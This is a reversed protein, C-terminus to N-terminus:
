WWTLRYRYPSIQELGDGLVRNKLYKVGGDETLQVTLEHTIVRDNGLPECVADVTLLWTGDAQEEMRVVEPIALSFGKPTRSGGGLRNWRYSQTEEDYVAYSRLQEPTVPLYATMIEEFEAAPIGGLYDEPNLTEGYKLAYFYEFLGNYDINEMREENWDSCFLNNGQYAVPRLVRESIERLRAEMPTVRLMCSADVVETVEPPEPVCCAYCFWGKDTYSWTRLRTYTTGYSAPVGGKWLFGTSLLYMEEGDFSFKKRRLGGDRHIEYLVLNGKEGKKAAKLFKDAKQFHRMAEYKNDSLVPDGVKELADLMEEVAADPLVVNEANEGSYARYIDGIREMRKRGEAEAAKKEAEDVPLDYGKELRVDEAERAAQKQTQEEGDSERLVLAAMGAAALIMTLLLIRRMSDKKKRKKRSQM